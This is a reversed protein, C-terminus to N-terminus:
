RAAAALRTRAASVARGGKRLRGRATWAGRALRTTHESRLRDAVLTADFINEVGDPTCDHLPNGLAILGGAVQLRRLWTWREEADLRRELVDALGHRQATARLAPLVTAQVAPNLVHDPHHLAATFMAELDPLPVDASVHDHAQLLCEALLVCANTTYDVAPHFALTNESEFVQAPSSADGSGSGTLQSVGNSHRSTGSLTHLRDTHLHRSTVAGVAVGSFIDPIISHFVRGTQAAVRDFARRHVAGWYPSPLEHYSAEFRAVRALLAPSDVASLRGSQPLRMSLCNALAPDFFQPWYYISLPWTLADVDEAAFVRLLETAAGPMLGDDDGLFCVYGDDVHSLAFEWHESMGLRRGPNVYRIREDDYSAVVERTEDTSANDSVLITLDDSDQTVCTRLSSVLTDHRERTPVIVTLRSSM